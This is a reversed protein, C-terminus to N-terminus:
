GRSAPIEWFQRVHLDYWRGLRDQAADLSRKKLWITLIETSLLVIHKGKGKHLQLHSREKNNPKQRKARYILFGVNGYSGGMYSALQRYDEPDLDAYNKLEFLATHAHHTESIRRWPGGSAEISGVLDRREVAAKNPHLEVNRLVRGFLSRIVQECWKEFEHQGPNGERIQPLQQQLHSLVRDLLMQHMQRTAQTDEGFEYSTDRLLVDLVEGPPLEVDLARLYCPHVAVRTGAPMVSLAPDSGDHCFQFGGQTQEFGLFGIGYLSQVVRAAVLERGDASELQGLWSTLEGLTSIAPRGSFAAIQSEVGPLVDRYEKCLDQLRNQSIGKAAAELDNEVIQDRGQNQAVLHTRNLLELVDRPRYLTYKLVALFGDHGHLEKKAFRNWVQEDKLTTPHGFAARLRAAVFMLLSTHDWDIRLHEGSVVRSFDEDLDSVIRYMNDRIFIILRANTRDRFDAASVLLGGIIGNEIAAPAWGEDIGDVLLVPRFDSDALESALQKEALQAARGANHIMDNFDRHGASTLTEVLSIAVAIPSEQAKGSLTNLFCTLIAERWVQRMLTRVARYEAGILHCRKIAGVLGQFDPESPPVAVAAYDEEERFHDSLRAFLASKGSGRRGVVISFDPGLLYDYYKTRLFARRLM